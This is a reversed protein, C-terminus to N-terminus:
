VLLQLLLLFLELPWGRQEVAQKAEFRGLLVGGGLHLLLWRGDSVQMWVLNGLRGLVDLNAYAVHFILDCLWMLVDCLGVLVM